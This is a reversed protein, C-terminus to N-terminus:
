LHFHIVRAGSQLLEARLETDVERECDIQSGHNQECDDIMRERREELHRIAAQEERQAEGVSVIPVSAPPLPEHLEQARAQGLCAALALLSIAITTAKM